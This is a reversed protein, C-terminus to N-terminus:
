GHFAFSGPHARLDAKSVGVLTVTDFRSLHIVADHGPETRRLLAAVSAFDAHPFSLLDDHHAAEFGTVTVHGPHASFVFADRGDAASLTTDHTVHVVRHRVEPAPGGTPPSLVPELDFTVAASTGTVGDSDTVSATLANLGFVSLAVAASWTGDRAVTAAGVDVGNDDIEVARGMLGATSGEPAFATGSVTQSLDPTEGGTGSLTVLPGEGTSQAM